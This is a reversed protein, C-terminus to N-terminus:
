GYENKLLRRCNGSDLGIFDGVSYGQCPQYGVPMFDYGVRVRHYSIVM